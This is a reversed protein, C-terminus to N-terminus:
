MLCVTMIVILLLMLMMHSLMTQITLDMVMLTKMLADCIFDYDVDPPMSTNDFPDSLSLCVGTAEDFDSYGDNDDDFDEQLGKHTNTGLPVEYEFLQLNTPNCEGSSINEYYGISLSHNGTVM